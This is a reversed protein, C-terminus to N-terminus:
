SMETEERESKQVFVPLYGEVPNGKLDYAVQGARKTKYGIAEWDTQGDIIRDPLMNTLWAEGERVEPHTLNFNPKLKRPM